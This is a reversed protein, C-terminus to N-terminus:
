CLKMNVKKANKALMYQREHMVQRSLAYIKEIFKGTFLIEKKWLTNLPRIELLLDSDCIVCREYIYVTKNHTHWILPLLAWAGLTQSFM